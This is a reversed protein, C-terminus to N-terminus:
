CIYITRLLGYIQTPTNGVCCSARTEPAKALGVPKGRPSKSKKIKKNKQKKPDTFYHANQELSIAPDLSGNLALVDHPSGIEVIIVLVSM